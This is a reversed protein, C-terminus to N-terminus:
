EESWNTIYHDSRFECNPTMAVIVNRLAAFLDARHDFEEGDRYVMGDKITYIHDSDLVGTMHLTECLAAFAKPADLEIEFKIKMIKVRKKNRM